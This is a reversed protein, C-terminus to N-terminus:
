RLRLRKIEKVFRIVLDAEESTLTMFQELLKLDKQTNLANNNIRDISTNSM